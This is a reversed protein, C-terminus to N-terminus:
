QIFILYSGVVKPTSAGEPMARLPQIYAFQIVHYQAISEHRHPVYKSINFVLQKYAGIFHGGEELISRPLM